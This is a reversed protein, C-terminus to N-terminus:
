VVTLLALLFCTLAAADLVLRVLQFRDWRDRRAIWETPDVDVTQKETWINIPVSVRFVVVLMAVICVSGAIAFYRGPSEVTASLAIGTLLTFNFILPGISRFRPGLAQQVAVQTPVPLTRGAPSIAFCTTVEKGLLVGALFLNVFHLADVAM